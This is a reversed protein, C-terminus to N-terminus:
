LVKKETWSYLQGRYRKGNTCLQTARQKTQRNQDTEWESGKGKLFFMTGTPM